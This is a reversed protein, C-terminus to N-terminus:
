DQKGNDKEAKIRELLVSAPEYDEEAKCKEIEAVSLLKGEFAKKLISQRLAEAKKLGQSISEEVKDCVSLRSEIERVIAHQEPLSCLPSCIQKIRAQGINRMSDQNGTSLEGIQKRGLHTRLFYLIYYKNIMPLFKFRLTKDSIMLKKSVKKVVVSRGVLELTNARSFLFDGKEILFVPNIRDAATVTKSENELFEGWSVASVKLIGVEGIVPPHEECRFSKGAEIKQLITGLSVWKWEEPINELTKNASLEEIQQKYHREREEKIQALLEEATPLDTQQERWEKTLEGEFAKKLVAQRYIKLQEQAKKLDAIGSDLDAFLSEIKSVIARQIPLPPLPLKYNNIFKTSVRPLNVGNTNASMDNVFKRSLMFFLAYQALINKLVDFVLIDTSCVGSEKALYVKNLNPRLKGYLIQGEIFKNKITTIEEYGVKETLSGSAKEIHELGIYFKQEIEDSKHKVKSLILVEGLECEVWDELLGNDSM